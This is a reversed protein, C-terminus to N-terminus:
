IQCEPCYYSSRGGIVSRQVLGDCRFCPMGARGHVVFSNQMRGKSGDPKAFQEISAGDNELGLRLSKQIARHLAAVEKASLSNARREPRIYAHFLAENAYINGIGAVFTQDLLLPKLLRTRGELRAALTEVTFAPELPEPGLGNLVEETKHVLYVRGFKRQDRFRLEHGNTLEFVTHVHKDLAGTAPVVSLHGSMKLHIILTDGSDLLFLLYKGRRQIAEIRRGQIRERLEDYSPTAIQRPWYNRIDSITQGILPDRLARVTTEVEPLEPM